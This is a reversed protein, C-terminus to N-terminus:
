LYLHLFVNEPPIAEHSEKESNEEDSPGDGTAGEPGIEAEIREGGAGPAEAWGVGNEVVL